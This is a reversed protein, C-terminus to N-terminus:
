TTKELLIIQLNETAPSFIKWGNSTGIWLNGNNESLIAGVNDLLYKKFPNKIRNVKNIGNGFTGAWLTGSKESYVFSVSNYSLSNPDKADHLYQIIKKSKRNFAYLGSDFTGVWITESQDECISSILGKVKFLSIFSGSYQNYSYLGNGTGLLIGANDEYITNIWFKGFINNPNSRNTLLHIFKKSNRDFKDLGTPTGILLSGYRDEHITYIINSISSSDYIINRLSSSDQDNRLYSTFKEKKRDFISLGGGITGIWLTGSKDEFISLVYNSGSNKRHARHPVYHSFKDDAPNYKELGRRTGIWINGDRDECLTNIFSDDISKPNEPDHEFSKFSYGDYKELGSWTGFWLFGKKDQIISTVISEILGQDISFHEFNIKEKQAFIDSLGFCFCFIGATLINFLWNTRFLKITKM